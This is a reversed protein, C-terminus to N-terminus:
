PPIGSEFPKKKMHKTKYDQMSKLYLKNVDFFDQITSSVFGQWENVVKTQYLSKKQISVGNSLIM